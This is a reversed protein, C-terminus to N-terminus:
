SWCSLQPSSDLDIAFGIVDNEVWSLALPQGDGNWVKERVGDIGWSNKTDGVGYNQYGPTVKFTEDAWGIQPARGKKIVTCEYYVKGHRFLYGRSGWTSFRKCDISNGDRRTDNIDGIILSLPAKNYWNQMHKIFDHETKLCRTIIERVTPIKIEDKSKKIIDDNHVFFQHYMDALFRKIKDRIEFDCEIQPYQICANDTKVIAMVIKALMRRKQISIKEERFQQDKLSVNFCLM